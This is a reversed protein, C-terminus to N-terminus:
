GWEGGNPDNNELGGGSETMVDETEFMQIELIPDVYKKM